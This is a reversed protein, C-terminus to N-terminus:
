TPWIAPTTCAPCTSRDTWSRSGSPRHRVAPDRGWGPLNAFNFPATFQYEGPGPRPVYVPETATELGDGQRRTLTARAAAQGVAIGAAKAAEDNVAALARGYAAEVLTTQDPLLAALVDRAAAAVAADVSAGPHPPSGPRTPRSGATSPM